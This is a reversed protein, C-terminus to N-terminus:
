VLLKGGLWAQGAAYLSRGRELVQSAWHSPPMGAWFPLPTRSRLCAQLCSLIVGLKRLSRIHRWFHSHDVWHALLLLLNSPRLRTSKLFQLSLGSSAEYLFRDAKVGRPCTGNGVMGLGRSVESITPAGCGILCPMKGSDMEEKSCRGWDEGVTGRVHEELARGEERDGHRDLSGDARVWVAAITSVAGYYILDCRKGM